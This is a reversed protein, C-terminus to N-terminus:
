LLLTRACCLDLNTSVRQKTPASPRSLPINYHVDVRWDPIWGYGAVPFVQYGRSMDMPLKIVVLRQFEVLAPAQVPSL